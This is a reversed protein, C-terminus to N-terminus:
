MAGVLIKQKMSLFEEETIAGSKWLQNADLLKQQLVEMNSKSNLSANVNNNAPMQPTFMLSHSLNPYMSMQPMHIGGNVIQQNYVLNPNRNDIAIGNEKDIFMGSVNLGSNGYMAQAKGISANSTAETMAINANSNIQAKQISTQNNLDTLQINTQNKMGTLQINAATELQMKTLINENTMQQKQIGVQANFMELREKQEMARIKMENEARVKELELDFKKNDLERSHKAKKFGAIGKAVTAAAAGGVLLGVGATGITANAKKIGDFFGM